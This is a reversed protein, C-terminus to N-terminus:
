ESILSREPIELLPIKKSSEEMQCNGQFFVGEAMTLCPTFLNGYVKATKHLVIQDQAHISGVVRGSVFVIGVKIEAEVVADQGIILNGTTIIEGEVHGDIRVTGSFNLTGKFHAGEGIFATIENDPSKNNKKM